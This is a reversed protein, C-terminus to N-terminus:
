LTPLSLISLRAFQRAQEDAAEKQQRFNIRTQSSMQSSQPRERWMPICLGTLRLELNKAPMLSHTTDREVSRPRCVLSRTTSRNMLKVDTTVPGSCYNSVNCTM